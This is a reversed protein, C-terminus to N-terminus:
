PSTSPSLNLESESISSSTPGPIPYTSLCLAAPSLGNPVLHPPTPPSTRVQIQSYPHKFLNASASFKCPYIYQSAGDAFSDGRWEPYDIGFHAAALTAWLSLSVISQSFMNPEIGFSLVLLSDTLARLSLSRRWMWVGEVPSM